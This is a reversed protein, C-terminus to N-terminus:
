LGERRCRSKHTTYRLLMDKITNLVGVLMHAAMICSEAYAHVNVHAYPSVHKYTTANCDVLLAVFMGGVIVMKDAMGDLPVCQCM